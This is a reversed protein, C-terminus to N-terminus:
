PEIVNCRVALRTLEADNHIALKKMINTHHGGVTKPSISIATAIGIISHGEALMKFIQFERSSLASLPDQPVAFLKQLAARTVYETDIFIEGQAVQRVAKVMQQKGSKKDLYGKAGLRMVQWIMTESGHMSFVLIRAEQNMAKIRRITELGDIGPMNLDLVVVDPAYKKYCNCCAEGNDAEAVVRIDPVSELLNRYGDRVVPHDDALLVKILGLPVNLTAKERTAPELPAAKPM